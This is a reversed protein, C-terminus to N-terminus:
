EDPQDNERKVVVRLYLCQGQIDTLSDLHFGTDAQHSLWEDASLDLSALDMYKGAHEGSTALIFVRIVYEM